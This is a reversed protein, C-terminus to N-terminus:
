LGSSRTARRRAKQTSSSANGPGCRANRTGCCSRPTVAIVTSRFSGSSICSPGVGKVNFISSKILFTPYRGAQYSFLAVTGWDAYSLHNPALILGGERPVNERGQMKQKILVHLLPQLVLTSFRRWGPSYGRESASM